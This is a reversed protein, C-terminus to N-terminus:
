KLLNEIPETRGALRDERAERALQALVDPRAAFAAQWKLEDNLEALLFDAFSKQEAEPLKAAQAFALELQKTM